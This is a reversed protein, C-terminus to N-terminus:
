QPRPVSARLLRTVVDALWARLEAGRVGAPLSAGDPIQIPGLVYALAAPTCGGDKRLADALASEIRFGARELCFLDVLDREESRSLVACLKNALIEEIPDVRVGGIQLKDARVQPVREWVLDVVVGEDGRTAVFRRFGPADQRVALSAGAEAAASRLAHGGREFAEADTTFFDLDSTERHHLHFGALAGGGTLFFGSEHRFFADLLDNQIATLRDRSSGL